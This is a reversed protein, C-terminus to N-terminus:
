PIEEIRVSFEREDVLRPRGTREVYEVFAAAHDFCAYWEETQNPTILEVHVLGLQSCGVKACMDPM